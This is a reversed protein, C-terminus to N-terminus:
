AVPSKYYHVVQPKCYALLGEKGWEGGLGSEKHGALHAQPLPIECNNIWVTGAEIRSAMEQAHTIDSSWITGGLGTMTDNARRIVDDEDNWRLVPVIPGQFHTLYM